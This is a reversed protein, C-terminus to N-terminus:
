RGLLAIVQELKMKAMHWALLEEQKYRDPYRMRRGELTIRILAIQEATPSNMEDIASGFVQISVLTPSKLGRGEEM